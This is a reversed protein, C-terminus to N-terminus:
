TSLEAGKEETTREHQGARGRCAREHQKRDRGHRTAEFVTKTLPKEAKLGSGAEREKRRAEEESGGRVM